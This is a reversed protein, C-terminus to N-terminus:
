KWVISLMWFYSKIYHPKWGFKHKLSTLYSICHYFNNYLCLLNIIFQLFFPHETNASLNIRVTLYCHSDEDHWPTLLVNTTCIYLMVCLGPAWFQQSPCISSSLFDLAYFKSPDTFVYYIAEMKFHRKHHLTLCYRIRFVRLLTKDRYEM